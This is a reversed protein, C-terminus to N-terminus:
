GPELETEPRMRLRRTVIRRAVADMPQESAYAYARLRVLAEEVTVGLQASVMGAAQHVEARSLSMGEGSQQTLERRVPVLEDLLLSLVVDAVVLTDALQDATMPVPRTRHLVLSGLRVAGSRLPFAFVARAGTEVAAPTFVPWRRHGTTSDLDPVLVPMGARFSDLGPGEGLAFQLDEIAASTTNTAYRSEDRGAGNMLTLGTGEVGTLHTCADCATRSSVVTNHAAVHAALFALVRVLRDDSV